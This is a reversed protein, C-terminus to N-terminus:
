YGPSAAREALPGVDVALRASAGDEGEGDRGRFADPQFLMVTEGGVVELSSVNEDDIVVGVVTPDQLRLEFSPGGGGVGGRASNSGEIEGSAFLLIVDGDEVQVHGPRVADLQGGGQM